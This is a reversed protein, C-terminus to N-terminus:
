NIRNCPSWHSPKIDGTEIVDAMEPFTMGMADNAAIVTLLGHEAHEIVGCRHINAWEAVPTPLSIIYGNYRLGQPAIEPPPIVEHEVAIDCIVGLPCRSGDECGLNGHRKPINGSRLRKLWEKKISEKM